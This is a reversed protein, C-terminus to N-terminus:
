LILFTQAGSLGGIESKQFLNLFFNAAMRMKDRSVELMEAFTNWFDLNRLIVFILNMQLSTGGGATVLKCVFVCSFCQVSSVETQQVISPLDCVTNNTLSLLRMKLHQFSHSASRDFLTNLIVPSM